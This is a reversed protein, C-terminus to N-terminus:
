QASVAAVTVSTADSYSVAVTSGFRGRPFPGIQVEAGAAVAVSANHDFGFNCLKTADITVTIAAAGGNSVVLMTHEDNTFSDGAADAAATTVAAGTLGPRQVNLTAM